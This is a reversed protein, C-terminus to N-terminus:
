LYFRNIIETIRRMYKSVNQCECWELFCGQVTEGVQCTIFLNYNTASAAEKIECPIQKNEQGDMKNFIHTLNYVSRLPRLLLLLVITAM